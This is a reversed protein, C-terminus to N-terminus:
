SFTQGQQALEEEAAEVADMFSEIKKVAKVQKAPTGASTLRTGKKQEIAKQKVETQTAVAKERIKPYLITQTLERITDTLKGRDVLFSIVADLTVNNEAAISALRNVVDPAVQDYIYAEGDKGFEERLTARTLNVQDLVHTQYLLQARQEIPSVIKKVREEVFEALIEEDSKEGEQKAPQQAPQQGYARQLAAVVEPHQLAQNIQALRQAVTQNQRNLEYAQKLVRDLVIEGKEDVNGQVSKVWKVHEPEEPPAAPTEQEPQAEQPEPAGSEQEGLAANFSQELNMDAPTPTISVPASASEPTGPANSPPM